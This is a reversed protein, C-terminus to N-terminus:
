KTLYEYASGALYLSGCVLIVDEPEVLAKAKEVARIIDAEAEINENFAKAM